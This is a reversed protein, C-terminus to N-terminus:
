YASPYGTFPPPSPQPPPPPTPQYPPETLGLGTIGGPPIVDLIEVYSPM